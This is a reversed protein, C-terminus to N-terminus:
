AVRSIPRAGSRLERASHLEHLIVHKQAARLSAHNGLVVGTHPCLVEYRMSRLLGGDDYEDLREIRYGLVNSESHRICRM